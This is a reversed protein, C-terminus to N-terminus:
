FINILYRQRETGDPAPFERALIGGNKIIARASGTNEKNCTIQVTTIGLRRCEDLALRLMESAYGKRRESPRIGMGIHGSWEALADNLYHRIHVAGLLIDRDDDLLFLVSDPVIGESATKHELHAIYDGIDHYERFIPGPIPKAGSKALDARWEALMDTLVHAYEETLRILRLM